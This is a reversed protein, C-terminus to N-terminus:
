HNQSACCFRQKTVKKIYVV